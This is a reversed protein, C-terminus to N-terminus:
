DYFNFGKKDKIWRNFDQYTAGFDIVKLKGEVFGYSTKTRFDGIILATYSALADGFTDCWEGFEKTTNERAWQNLGYSSEESDYDNDHSFACLKNAFNVQMVDVNGHYSVSDFTLEKFKKFSIGAFAKFKKHFDDTDAKKYTAFLFNTDYPSYIPANFVEEYGHGSFWGDNEVYLQQRGWDNIAVKAVTGDNLDYVIRGTGRGLVPFNQKFFKKIEAHSLTHLNTPLTM